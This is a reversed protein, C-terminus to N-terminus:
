SRDPPDEPLASVRTMRDKMDGNWGWGRYDENLEHLYRRETSTAYGQSLLRESEEAIRAYSLLRLTNLGRNVNASMAEADRARRNEADERRQERAEQEQRQREMAKRAVEDKKSFHRQVFFNILSGSGVVGCLTVLAEMDM